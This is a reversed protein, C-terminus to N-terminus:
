FPKEKSFYSWLRKMIEIGRLSGIGEMCGCIAKKRKRLSSIERYEAQEHCRGLLKVFFM